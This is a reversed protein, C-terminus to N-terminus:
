NKGIPVSPSNPQFNLLIQFRDWLIQCNSPTRPFRQEQYTNLQALINCCWRSSECRGSLNLRARSAQKTTQMWFCQFLNREDTCIRCLLRSFSNGKQQTCNVGHFPTLANYYGQKRWIGNDFKNHRDRRMDWLQHRCGACWLVHLPCPLVFPLFTHLRALCPAQKWLKKLGFVGFGFRSFPFHGAEHVLIMQVYHEMGPLM